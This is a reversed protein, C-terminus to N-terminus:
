PDLKRGGRSRVRFRRRRRESRQGRQRRGADRQCRRRRDCRLRTGVRAQLARRRGRDAAGACAARGGPDRQAGGRWLRVRRREGGTRHRRHQDCRRCGDHRQLGGPLRPRASDRSRHPDGRDGNVRHARRVFGRGRASRGARREQPVRRRRRDACRRDSRRLPPHSGGLLARLSRLQAGLRPRRPRGPAPRHCRSRRSRRRRGGRAGLGRAATPAPAGAGGVPRHPM